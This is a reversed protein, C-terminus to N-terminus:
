VGRGASSPATGPSRPGPGGTHRHRSETLEQSVRLNHRVNRTLTHDKGLVRTCGVLTREYLPVADALRGAERYADALSSGSRLTSLHEPGFIRQRDALAREYLPIADGLRGAGNYADALYGTSRLTSPHDLGFLRERDALTREYLPIADRLRGAAWYAAALYNSSRLTRPHDPGLLRKWDALIREYLPIAKALFGAQRYAFALNNLSALTHPHDPGLRQERDAVAREHVAVAQALWGARGYPYTTYARSDLDGSRDAGLQRLPDALFSGQMPGTDVVAEGARERRFTASHKSRGDAPLGALRAAGGYFHRVRAALRGPAFVAAVQQGACVLYAVGGASLGSILQALPGNLQSAVARAALAAASSALLAPLVAKGLAVLRVGTVRKLALLYSPLVIPVIVAVHAYAAGVVGDKQVGFAMAPVLSSIWVLQLVLLFKTRGLSTLMNAFLLCVIFVAGYISLIELVRASAAWKAGYLTLILPHALALM